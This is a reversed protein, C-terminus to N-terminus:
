PLMFASKGTKIKLSGSLEKRDIIKTHKLTYIAYLKIIGATIDKYAGM